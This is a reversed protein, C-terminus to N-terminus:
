GEDEVSAKNALRWAKGTWIEVAWYGWWIAIAPDPWGRCLIVPFITFLGGDIDDTRFSNM